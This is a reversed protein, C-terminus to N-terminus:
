SKRGKKGRGLPEIGEVDVWGGLVGEYECGGSTNSYPYTCVSCVKNYWTDM